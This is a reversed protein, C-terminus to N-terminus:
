NPDEWTATWADLLEMLALGRNQHEEAAVKDIGRADFGNVFNFYAADASRGKEKAESLFCLIGLEDRTGTVAPCSMFVHRPPVTVWM